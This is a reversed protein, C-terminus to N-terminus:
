GGALRRWREVGRRLIAELDIDRSGRARGPRPAPTFLGLSSLIWLSAFVCASLIVASVAGIGGSYAANVAYGLIAPVAILAKLLYSTRLVVMERGGEYFLVGRRDLLSLFFAMNSAGYRSGLVENIAISSDSIFLVSGEGYGVRVAVLSGRISCITSVSGWAGVDIYRYINFIIIYSAEGVICEAAEVGGLSTSLGIGLRSLLPDVTGLEDLVIAEGGRSVWGLIKDAESDGLDRDPSAVILIWSTPQYGKLQEAGDIHDVTFGARRLEGYITSYGGGGLNYISPPDYMQVAPIALDWMGIILIALIALAIILSRPMAERGVTL